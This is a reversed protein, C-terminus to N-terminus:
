FRGGGVARDLDDRGHHHDRDQEVEGHAGDRHEQASDGLMTVVTISEVRFPDVHTDLKGLPSTSGSRSFM